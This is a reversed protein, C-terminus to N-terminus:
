FLKLTKERNQYLENYLLIEREYHELLFDSIEFVINSAFGSIFNGKIIGEKIYEKNNRKQECTMSTLLVNALTGEIFPKNLENVVVRDIGDVAVTWTLGGYNAHKFVIYNFNEIDVVFTYHGDMDGSYGTLINHVSFSFINEIKPHKYVNGYTRFAKDYLKKLLFEKTIM